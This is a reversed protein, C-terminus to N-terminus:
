IGNIWSFSFIKFIESLIVIFIMLGVAFVFLITSVKHLLITSKKLCLTKDKRKDYHINFWIVLLTILVLIGITLYSLKIGFGYYLTINYAFFLNSFLFILLMFLEITIKREMSKFIKKSIREEMLFLYDVSNENENKKM